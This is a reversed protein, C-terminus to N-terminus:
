YNTCEYKVRTLFDLLSQQWLIPLNIQTLDINYISKKHLFSLDEIINSEVLVINQKKIIIRLYHNENNKEFIYSQHNIKLGYPIRSSGKTEIPELETNKIMEMESRSLSANQFYEKFYFSLKKRFTDKVENEPPIKAHSQWDTMGEQLAQLVYQRYTESPAYILQSFLHANFKLLFSAGFIFCNNITAMGSGLIKKDDYWLDYGSITVKLNFYEYTKVITKLCLSHFTKQDTAYPYLIFFCWQNEDILATGGGLARQYIEVNHKQCAHIDIENTLYQSAGLSLHPKNTKLWLVLPQQPFSEALGQCTHYFTNGSVVQLDVFRAM